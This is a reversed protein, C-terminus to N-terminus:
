VPEALPRPGRRDLEALLQSFTELGPALGFSRPNHAAYRFHRQRLCLRDWATMRSGALGEILGALPTLDLRFGRPMGYHGCLQDLLQNVRTFDAHWDGTSPDGGVADLTDVVAQALDYDIHANMGALAFQLATVDGADRRDILM